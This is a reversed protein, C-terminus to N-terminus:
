MVNAINEMDKSTFILFFLGAIVMIFGTLAFSIVIELNNTAAGYIFGVTFIILSITLWMESKRM